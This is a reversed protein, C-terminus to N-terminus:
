AAERLENGWGTWGARVNERAFLVVGKAGYWEELREEAWYPKESHEGKRASFLTPPRLAPGPVKVKGRTAIIVHETVDRGFGNGLGVIQKNWVFLRRPDFGWAELVPHHSGILLHWDTIWLALCALKAFIARVPLAAIEAPTMTPYQWRYHRKNFGIKNKDDEWPPDAVGVCWPGDPLKLPNEALRLMEVRVQERRKATVKARAEGLDLDSRVFGALEEPELRSLEYLAGVNPPLVKLHGPESLFPHRAIEMLRQAHRAGFPLKEKIMAQFTGSELEAKAQILLRGTELIAEAGRRWAEEIRTVFGAVATV